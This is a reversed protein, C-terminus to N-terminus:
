FRSPSLFSHSEDGGTISNVISSAMGASWLMGKSGGGTAIFVNQSPSLRGLLPLGDPTAPRMAAFHGKVMYKKIEPIFVSAGNLITEAGQSSLSYDFGVDDRTGGLWYLGEKFQYLGDKEHTIDCAFPADDIELLLLEGKIPRLAGQLSLGKVLAVQAGNAFVIYDGAYDRGSKGSVTNNGSNLATVTDHVMKAGLAKAAALLAQTYAKADLTGNGHTMLGGVVKPSLRPETELLEERGLWEAWFDPQEQYLIRNDLLQRREEENFALLIREIVRGHFDIGSLRQINRWHSRHLNYSAISFEQMVGPIGPGHLPNIGGPNIYSAMNEENSTIVTCAIGQQALLYATFAGTIGSGIIIIENLFFCRVGM